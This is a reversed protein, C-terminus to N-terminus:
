LADAVFTGAIGFLGASVYYQNSPILQQSHVIM